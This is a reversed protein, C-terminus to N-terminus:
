KNMDIFEEDSLVVQKKYKNKFIIEIIKCLDERDCQLEYKEGSTISLMYFKKSSMFSYNYLFMYIVLQLLHLSSITQSTKFEWLIEDDICDVFGYIVRQVPQEYGDVNINIEKSLYEEFQPVNTTSKINNEIRKMCLKVVKASLLNYSKIQNIKHVLNNSLALHIATLEFLNTNTLKTVKKLDAFRKRINRYVDNSNYSYRQLLERISKRLM